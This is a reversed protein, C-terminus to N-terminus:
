QGAKIKKALKLNDLGELILDMKRQQAQMQQKLLELEKNKGQEEKLAIELTLASGCKECHTKGAENVTECINCTIPNEKEEEKRSLGFTKDLIETKERLGVRGYIDTFFMVSHGMNKAALEIPWKDLKKITASSHRFNYFDMPKKIGAKKGLTKVRQQIAYYSYRLDGRSKNMNERLWLPAKGKMPHMQLWRQLYPISRWILVDRAGTKGRAQLVLYKGERTVDNYNLDIFESPRLGADLQTLIIAKFQLSNTLKAMQLGEEWTIMDQPLIERKQNKRKNSLDRFARPKEGENLWSVLRLSVNLITSYYAPTLSERMEKFISNVKDRDDFLKKVDKCRELMFKIHFCFIKLRAPSVEYAELFKRLHEKNIDSIKPNDFLNRKANEAYKKYNYIPM